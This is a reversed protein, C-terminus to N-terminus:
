RMIGVFLNVHLMSQALICVILYTMYDGAICKVLPRNALRFLFLSMSALHNLLKYDFRSLAEDFLRCRYQKYLFFLILNFKLFRILRSLYLLVSLSLSFFSSSKKEQKASRFRCNKGTAKQWKFKKHGSRKKKIQKGHIHFIIFERATWGHCLKM